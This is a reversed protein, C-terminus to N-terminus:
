VLSPNRLSELRMRLEAFYALPPDNKTALPGNNALARKVYRDMDAVEIYGKGEPDLASANQRYADGGTARDYLHFDDPKSLNGPNFNLLYLKGMNTLLAHRSGIARDFFRRVYPFQQTAPLALYEELSSPWGVARLGSLPQGSDTPCIQNMGACSSLRNKASPSIGSEANLVGLIDEATISAGRAQYDAAMGLVLRFFADSLHATLRIPGKSAPVGAPDFSPM